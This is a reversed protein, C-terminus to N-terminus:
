FKAVIPHPSGVASATVAGKITGFIRCCLVANNITGNNYINSHWMSMVAIDRKLVLPSGHLKEQLISFMSKFFCQWLPSRLFFFFFFSYFLGAGYIYWCWSSINCLPFGFNPFSNSWAFVHYHFSASWRMRCRERSIPKKKEKAWKTTYQTLKCKNMFTFTQVWARWLVKAFKRSCKKLHDHM